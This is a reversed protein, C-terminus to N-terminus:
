PRRQRPAVNSRAALGRDRGELHQEDVHALAAEDRRVVELNREGDGAHEAATRDLGADPDVLVPIELEFAALEHLEQAVLSRALTDCVGQFRALRKAVLTARPSNTRAFKRSVVGLASCVDDISRVDCM